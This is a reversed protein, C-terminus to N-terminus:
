DDVDGFRPLQGAPILVDPRKLYNPSKFFDVYTEWDKIEYFWDVPLKRYTSFDVPDFVENLTFRRGSYQEERPLRRLWDKNNPTYEGIKKYQMTGAKFVHHTIKKVDDKNFTFGLKKGQLISSTNQTFLVQKHVSIDRRYKILEKPNYLGFPFAAYFINPETYKSIRGFVKMAYLAANIIGWGYSDRIYRHKTMQPVLFIPIPKRGEKPYTDYKRYYYIPDHIYDPVRDKILPLFDDNVTIWISECGVAACEYIAKDLATFNDGVPMLSDHWQFGFSVGENEM